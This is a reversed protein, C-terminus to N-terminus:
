SSRTNIELLDAAAAALAPALRYGSGNAAGVFVVRGAEDLARVMPEGTGSYADCFVRGTTLHAALESAYRDLVARAEALNAASLGGTLADPDVDYETCTYSFLWHGRYRLPLLFADEDHFVVVDNADTPSRDIHLAVVKKVRAGLPEVLSRWASDALWPGPALVVRRATLAAGTGLRLEAHDARPLVATVRVGERVTVASRLDRTLMQTLTPVDAYQCGQGTWALSGDPIRVGAVPVRYVRELKAQELYAEHVRPENRAAAVVTMGVPHIPLGPRQLRLREYHLQSYQAMQRVRDTAGRPLHLGASRRTAGGAVVDRDLLVVSARPARAALERAVTCGIIGGGVVATDIDIM